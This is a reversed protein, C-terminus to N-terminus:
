IRRERACLKEVDEVGEALLWNGGYEEMLLRFKEQEPRLNEGPRKVEIWWVEGTKSVATLDPVGKYSFPGAWNIWVWWGRLELYEKIAGRITNELVKPLQQGSSDRPTKGDRGRVRAGGDRGTGGLLRFQEPTIYQTKDKAKM